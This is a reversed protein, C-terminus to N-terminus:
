LRPTRPINRLKNRVIQAIRQRAKREQEAHYAILFLFVEREYYNM